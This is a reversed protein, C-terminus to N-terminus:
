GGFDTPVMKDTKEPFSGVQAKRYTMMGPMETM